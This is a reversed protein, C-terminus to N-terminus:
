LCSLVRILVIGESVIGKCYLAQLSSPKHRSFLHSLVSQIMIQVLVFGMDKGSANGDGKSTDYWRWYVGKLCKKFALYPASSNHYVKTAFRPKIWDIAFKRGKGAIEDSKSSDRVKKKVSNEISDCRNM